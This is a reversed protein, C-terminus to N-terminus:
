RQAAAAGAGTESAAPARGRAARQEECWAALGEVDTPLDRYRALQAILVDLTADADKAASHRVQEELSRALVGAESGDRQAFEAAQDRGCYHLVANNLNRPGQIFRDWGP